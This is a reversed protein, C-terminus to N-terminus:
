FVKQLVFVTNSIIVNMKKLYVFSAPINEIFEKRKEESLDIGANFLVFGNDSVRSEINNWFEASYFVDPVLIDIFVDVIILDFQQTNKAIFNEAKDQIIEVQTDELIEFENKAIDIVVPDLEVGIIKERYNYKNRLSDVVCGAGMGLVLVSNINEMPIRDLGRELVEQLGGYSYNTNKTNLLKKNNMQIVELYDNIKSSYTKLNENNM